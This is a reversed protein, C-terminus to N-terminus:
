KERIIFGSSIQYENRESDFGADDIGDFQINDIVVSAITGSYQDLATKVVGAIRYGERPSDNVIVDLQVFSKTVGAAGDKSYIPEQSSVDFIICPNTTEQPSAVPYIRTSVEDTVTSDAVLIGYIADHVLSM